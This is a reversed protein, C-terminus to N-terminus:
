LAVRKEFTHTYLYRWVESLLRTYQEIYYRSLSRHVVQGV